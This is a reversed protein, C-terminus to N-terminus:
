GCTYWSSYLTFWFSVYFITKGNNFSGDLRKYVNDADARVLKHCFMFM